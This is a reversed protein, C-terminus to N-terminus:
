LKLCKFDFSNLVGQLYALPRLKRMAGVKLMMMMMMVVMVMMSKLYVTCSWPLSAAEFFKAM